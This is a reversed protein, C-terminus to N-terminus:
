KVQEEKTTEKNDEVDPIEKKSSIYTFSILAFLFAFQTLLSAIDMVLVYWLSSAFQIVLVTICVIYLTEFFLGLAFFLYVLLLFSQKKTIHYIFMFIFTVVFLLLYIVYFFNSATIAGTWGLNSEFNFSPISLFLSIILYPVILAVCAQGLREKKLLLAICLIILMTMFFIMRFFYPVSFEGQVWACLNPFFYAAFSLLTLTFVFILSSSKLFKFFKDM